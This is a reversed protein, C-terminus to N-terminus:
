LGMFVAGIGVAVLGLGYTGGVSFVLSGAGSNSSSSSGDSSAFGEGNDSGTASATKSATASSTTATKNAKKPSTAGCKHTKPCQNSCEANGSCGETCANLEITCQFYPITQSYETLNPSVGGSCTCEYFLNEPYCENKTTDKGLDRCLLPCSSTQSDCWYDKTSNNVDDVSTQGLSTPFFFAAAVLITLISQM